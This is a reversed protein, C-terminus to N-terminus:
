DDKVRWTQHDLHLINQLKAYDPDHQQEHTPPECSEISLGHESHEQVNVRGDRVLFSIYFLNEVSQSFSEPNIFFKFFSIEEETEELQELCEHIAQVNASTENSQRQVDSEKLQEPKVLNSKDKQLRVAAKRPGAVKPEIELAGFMFGATPPLLCAKKTYRTLGMWDSGIKRKAKDVFDNLDFGSGGIKLKQAKSAAIEVTKLLFTSDLVAEQTTKVNNFLHNGERLKEILKETDGNILAQREGDTANTLERYDARLQRKDQLTQSKNKKQSMQSCDEGATFFGPDTPSAAITHIYNDHVNRIRKCLECITHNSSDSGIIYEENYSFTMPASDFKQAAGVYSSVVKGSGMDWLKGKGDLGTSLLYSNSKTFEIGIVSAGDHAKSITNVCRGTVTDYIKISGDISSSAFTQGNSAYRVKTIAGQHHDSANSSIFVKMTQIDFLRVAHHDTGSIIFEGSPHFSISRVPYADSLYRFGRKTNQKQLDFFKIKFDYSALVAGNPHFVVENVPGTHDYLTKLVKKEDADGRTKKSILHADLVKLSTDHSGTAVYAGDQSFACARVPEKHMTLFIASYNPQYSVSPNNFDFEDTAVEVEDNIPEQEEQINFKNLACIEALKNSPEPSIGIADAVTKAATYFGYEKLQSVILSLVKEQTIDTM